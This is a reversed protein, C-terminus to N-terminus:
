RGSLYKFSNDTLVEINTKFANSPSGNENFWDYAGFVITLVKGSNATGPFEAIAVRGDLSDDWAESALNIGGTQQRWTAANGYGGWEPLFWWATHNLRYTGRELFNAKGTQYTQIGTYLPHNEKGRFSIGWDNNADIFGGPLFDGFINNPGKGSPIIGLVELYKVAFTTLLLAGGNNRYAKLKDVVSTNSAISPLDMSADNHWWIVSYASLDAGAQISGFSLYVGDPYKSFFWNAAAKEDENVIAARSNATGLFAYVKANSKEKVTVTYKVSVNNAGNVTYEVPNTFNVTANAAPSIIVGSSLSIQPNVATLNTGDPVLVTIKRAVDDISGNTGNVTFGLFPNLVRATVKYNKYLNGNVIRYSVPLAYSVATTPDPSITAGAPLDVSAELATLTNGFPLDVKIDGIKNDIVGETGNLRFSTLEVPVDISFNSNEEKECGSFIAAIMAAAFSVRASTFYKNLM